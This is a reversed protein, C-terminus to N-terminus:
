NREKKKRERIDIAYQYMEHNTPAFGGMMKDIVKNFRVPDNKEFNLMANKFKQKMGEPLSKIACFPSNPILPSWWIIKIDSPKIMGKKAMRTHNGETKDYAWTVAADYTGNLVAVVGNEHSGSFGTRSFYPKTKDLYGKNGLVTSPITYGSTSNPDTFAMSRGKLDELSNYLSDGKVIIISYYGLKGKSSVDMILPEVNGDMIDYAVAYGNGGIWGFEVKGAAMAEIIGAYDSATRLVVEIGLQSSLYEVGPQWRLITDQQNEGSAIGLTVKPYKKRWDEASVTFASFTCAIAVLISILKIRM